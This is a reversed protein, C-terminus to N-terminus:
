EPAPLFGRIASDIGTQYGDWVISRGGTERSLSRLFEVAPHSDPGCYITDIAGTMKAAAALADGESNPLGDSIIISIRPKWRAALKLAGALDTGGGPTPLRSPSSVQKAYSGFAVLRIRPWTLCVDQLAIRLHEYKSINQSGILDGMSGSCDALVVVENSAGAYRQEIRAAPGQIKTAALRKVISQLPSAIENAV